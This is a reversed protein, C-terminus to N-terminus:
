MTTLSLRTVSVVIFPSTGIGLLMAFCALFTVGSVLAGENCLKITSIFLSTISNIKSSGTTNLLKFKEPM